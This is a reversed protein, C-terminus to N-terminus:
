DLLSSRLSTVTHAPVGLQEVLGEMSGYLADVQELFGYMAEAPADLYDAPQNTM